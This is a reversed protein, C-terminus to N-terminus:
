FLSTQSSTPEVPQFIGRKLLEQMCRATALVDGMANHAGDFGKQFLFEHLEMLTPSKYNGHRGPLRCLHKTSTMTDFLQEPLFKKSRGLRALEYEIISQDFSLNHAVAIDARHFLGVLMDAYDAFLPSQAVMEDSIGHIDTCETPIPVAPRVLQDVREVERLTRATMDCEILLAGFQCIYPQEHLALQSSPLGTTETDFVIIKVVRNKSLFISGGTPSSGVVM